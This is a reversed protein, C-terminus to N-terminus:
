ALRLSTGQCSAGDCLKPCIRYQYVGPEQGLEQGGAVVAVGEVTDDDALDMRQRLCLRGDARGAAGGAVLEDFGGDRGSRSFAGASGASRPLSVENRKAAVM